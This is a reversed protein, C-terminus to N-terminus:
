RSNFCRRGHTDLTNLVATNHAWVKANTQYLHLAEPPLSPDRESFQRSKFLEIDAGEMEGRALRTLAQAFPLDDRQRMIETLEVLCFKEWLTPGALEAYGENSRPCTNLMKAGVMSIEDIVILKLNHLKTAITNPLPGGFQSLPLSLASHLTMGGINFANGTPACLLVCVDDPNASQDSSKERCWGRRERVRIVAFSRNEVHYLYKRQVSNLSAVLTEFDPDPIHSPALFYEAGEQRAPQGIQELVDVRHEEEAEMAVFEDQHESMEDEDLDAIPVVDDVHDDDDAGAQQIEEAARVLETERRCCYQM